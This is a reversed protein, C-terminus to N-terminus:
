FKLFVSAAGLMAAALLLVTRTRRTAGDRRLRTSQAKGEGSRDDEGESRTLTEVGRSSLFRDDRLYLLWALVILLGMLAASIRGFATRDGFLRVALFFCSAGGTAAILVAWIATRLAGDFGTKAGNM